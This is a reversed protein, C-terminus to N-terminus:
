IWRLKFMMADNADQFSFEIIIRDGIQARIVVSWTHDVLQDGFQELCWQHVDEVDFDNLNKAKTIRIM